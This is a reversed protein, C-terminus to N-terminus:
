QVSDDPSESALRHIGYVGAGGVVGATGLQAALAKNLESRVAPSVFEDANRVITRHGRPLAAYASHLGYRLWEPTWRYYANPLAERASHLGYQLWQPAWRYYADPVAEHVSHAADRAAAQAADISNRIAGGTEQVTKVDKGWRARAMNDYAQRAKEAYRKNKANFSARALHQMRSKYAGVVARDGGRLLQWYRAPLGVVRGLWQPMAQKTLAAAAKEEGSLAKYTGYGAGGAAVVGTGLRAALVKRMEARLEPSAGMSTRLLVNRLGYRTLKRSLWPMKDVGPVSLFAQMTQDVVPNLETKMWQRVAPKGGMLLQGYRRFPSAVRGVWQPMAAQKTTADQDVGAATAKKEGRLGAVVGLVQRRLENNM